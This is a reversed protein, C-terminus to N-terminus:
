CSLHRVVKLAKFKPKAPTRTEARDAEGGYPLRRAAMSVDTAAFPASSFRLPYLRINAARPSGVAQQSHTDSM